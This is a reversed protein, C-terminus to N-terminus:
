LIKYNELYFMFRIDENSSSPKWAKERLGGGDPIGTAIRQLKELNIERQSLQIVFLTLSYSPVTLLVFQLFDFCFWKWKEEGIM